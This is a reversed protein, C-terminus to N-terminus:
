FRILRVADNAAKEVCQQVQKCHAALQKEFQAFPVKEFDSMHKYLRNWADRASMNEPLIHQEVDGLFVKRATSTRWDILGDPRPM